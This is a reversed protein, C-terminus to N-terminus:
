ADFAAPFLIADEFGTYDAIARELDKHITQTGCIFRVSALGAGWREIALRTGAKVRPDDALGLYNNACLNIAPGSSTAITAGQATTLVREPKILGEDDLAQLQASISAYFADSM